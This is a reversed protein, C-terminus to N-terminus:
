RTPYPDQYMRHQQQQQQQQEHYWIRPINNVSGHSPSPLEPSPPLLALHSSSVAFNPNAKSQQQEQQPELQPGQPKNTSCWEFPQNKLQQLILSVPPLTNSNMQGSQPNHQQQNHHTHIANQSITQLNSSSAGGAGGPTASHYGVIPWVQQHVSYITSSNLPPPTPQPYRSGLVVEQQRPSEQPKATEALTAARENDSHQAALLNTQNQRQQHHHRQAESHTSTSASINNNNNSTGGLGLTVSGGDLLGSSGSGGGGEEEKYLCALKRKVCCACAPRSRDCKLKKSYCSLCSVAKKLRMFGHHALAHESTAGSGCSSPLPALLAGTLPHTRAPKLLPDARARRAQKAAFVCEQRREKCRSCAAGTGDSDCKKRFRRCAACAAPRAYHRATPPAQHQPPPVTATTSPVPQHRADQRAHTPAPRAASGTAGPSAEQLGLIAQAAALEDPATM